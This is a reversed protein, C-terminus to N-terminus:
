SDAAAAAEAEALEAAVSNIASVWRDVRVGAEVKFHYTAAGKAAAVEFVKDSSARACPRASGSGGGSGRPAAPLLSIERDLDRADMDLVYLRGGSTLVQYRPLLLLLPLPHMKHYSCMNSLAIRRSM